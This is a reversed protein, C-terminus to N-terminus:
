NQRTPSEKPIRIKELKIFLKVFFIKKKASFSMEHYLAINFSISFCIKKLLGSSFVDYNTYVYWKSLAFEKIDFNLRQV